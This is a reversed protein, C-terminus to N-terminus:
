KAVIIKKGDIKFHVLNTLQLLRLLKSVPVNRSINAVFNQNVKEGDYVIEVDYWRSVQRMISEINANFQFNGNKWALAEELDADQIIKIAGSKNIQGQEGPKLLNSKDSRMLKVSGELLTTKIEGEDEYANINFHTGLVEVEGGGEGSPSAPIVVKFPKHSDHNVEFYAEGTLEVRRENKAFAIPFRLSSAANLWAKSGDPLVIAYQGGRPTQITNYLIETKLLASASLSNTKNYALLGNDLKLIKQNGQQTIEGNHASDLIVTAGNALTLTAKNGGPSIDNKYDSSVQTQAVQRHSNNKWIMWGSVSLVIIISIAAVAKRNFSKRPIIKTDPVVPIEIGARVKEWVSVEDFGKEMKIISEISLGEFFVKNEDSANIWKQLKSWEEETIEERFFKLILEPIYNLSKPLMM